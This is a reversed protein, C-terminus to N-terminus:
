LNAICFQPFAIDCPSSQCAMACRSQASPDLGGWRQSLTDDPAACATPSVVLPRQAFARIRGILLALALSVGGHGAPTSSPDILAADTNRAFMVVM